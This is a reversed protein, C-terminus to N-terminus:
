QGSAANGMGAVAGALEVRGTIGLKRYSGTLHKEVARRTVGLEVAIESNKLGDLALEVVRQEAESLSRGRAFVPDSWGPQARVRDVLWGAGCAGAVLYAERLKELAGGGTGSDSRLWVGHALLAKALELRDGSRQLTKVSEDLLDGAGPGGFLAKVRLARGIPGPAGWRTAERWDEDAMEAAAEVYGLRFRLAAAWPRWPFAAPNRWGADSLTSGCDLFCELAAEPDGEALMSGRLMLLASRLHPSAKNVSRGDHRALLRRAMSPDRLTMAVACLVIDSVDFLPQAAIGIGELEQATSAALGLEGLQTAVSARQGLLLAREVETGVQGVEALASDLWPLADAGADANVLSTVVLPVVGHESTRATPECRLLRNALTAVAAAPFDATVMAAYALVALQERDDTSSLRAEIGLGRLRGVSDALAAPDGITALRARAELRRDIEEFGGPRGAAGAVQATLASNGPVGASSVTTLSLRVIAEARERPSPLLQVAQQVHRVSATIDFGEEATALDVLLRARDTGHPSCALLARRLYRAAAEPEGRVVAEDAATRLEEIMWPPNQHTPVALLHRAAEEAPSGRRHLVAAAKQHAAERDLLTTSEEVVELVLPATFGFPVERTLLGLLRLTRRADDVAVEDTDTLQAVLEPVAHEGLIAIAQACGLVARPLARVAAALRERLAWPVASAASEASPQAIGEVEGFVADLILPNGGSALSCARTFDPGAAPFRSRVLAAIGRESLPEPRLVTTAAGCLKRAPPRAAGPDGDRLTLVLAVPRNRLSRALVDLWELSERDAWQIDDVVVALPREASLRDFLARLADGGTGGASMPVLLQEVVGFAFDREAPAASAALIRVGADSLDPVVRALASKGNGVGGRIVTLSGTGADTVAALARALLGTEREREVLRGM